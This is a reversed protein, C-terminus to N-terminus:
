APGSLLPAGLPGPIPGTWSCAARNVKSLVHPAPLAGVPQILGTYFSRSILEGTPAAESDGEEVGSGQAGLAGGFQREADARQQVRETAGLASVKSLAMLAAKSGAGKKDASESGGGKGMVKAWGGGVRVPKGDASVDGRSGSEEAAAAPLMRPQAHMRSTGLIRIGQSPDGVVITSFDPTVAVSNNVFGRVTNEQRRTFTEMSWTYVAGDGVSVLYLGDQGWAIDQIATFHGKLRALLRWHMTNFIYIEKGGDGGVVALLHGTPAYQMISCKAMEQPQASAAARNALQPTAPSPPAAPFTNPNDSGPTSSPKPPEPPVMLSGTELLMGEVISPPCLWPWLM